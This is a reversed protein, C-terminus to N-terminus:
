QKTSQDVAKAQVDNTVQSGYVEAKKWGWLLVLAYIHEEMVVLYVRVSAGFGVGSLPIQTKPLGLM